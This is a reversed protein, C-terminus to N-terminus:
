QCLILFLSGALILTLWIKGTTGPDKTHAKKEALLLEVPRVPALTYFTFQLNSKKNKSENLTELNSPMWHRNLKIDLQAQVSTKFHILVM